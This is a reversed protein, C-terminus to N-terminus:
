FTAFYGHFAPPVVTDLTWSARAVEAFTIGDLIVCFTKRSDSESIVLSLLVGEDERNCGPKPVFIPESPYCDDQFWTQKTRSVVNAKVLGLRGEERIIGYFFKYPKGNFMKYNIQPLEINDPFLTDAAIIVANMTVQPKLPIRFRDVRSTLYGENRKTVTEDNDAAKIENIFFAKLFDSNKYTCVDICLSENMQDEFTNIVHFFAFPEEAYCSNRIIENTKRDIIWFRSKFEPRWKLIKSNTGKIVRNQHLVEPISIVLPQEIFVFYDGTMGFSHFYSPTSPRLTPISCLIMAQNLPDNKPFFTINYSGINSGMNYTGNNDVHPHSTATNVGVVDYLNVKEFTELTDTDIRRILPSDTTAYVQDGLEYFGVVDNDTFVDGLTFYTKFREFFSMCPDPEITRTGFESVVIRGYKMAKTFSDSRLFKSQYRIRGSNIEIRQLLSMGDFLHNLEQGGISKM